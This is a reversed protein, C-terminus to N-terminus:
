LHSKDNETAFRRTLSLLPQKPCGASLHNGDMDISVGQCRRVPTALLQNTCSWQTSHEIGRGHGLQLPHLNFIKM